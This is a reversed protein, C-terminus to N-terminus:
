QNGRNLNAMEPEVLQGWLGDAYDRWSREPRGSIEDRLRDLAQQDTLLTRMAATLAGDDHPDVLLAGGDAAIEATSGFDSTIVPVGHALSEAVPLGYGEHLSPFVTFSAMAYAHDLEADSVARRVDLPRHSRELEAM